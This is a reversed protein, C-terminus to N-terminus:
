ADGGYLSEEYCYEKINLLFSKSTLVKGLIIYTNFDVTPTVIPEQSINFPPTVNGTNRVFVLEKTIDFDYYECYVEGTKQVSYLNNEINVCIGITKNYYSANPISRAIKGNDLLMVADGVSITASEDKEYNSIDGIPLLNETYDPNFVKQTPPTTVQSNYAFRSIKHLKLKTEPTSLNREIGVVVFTNTVEVEDFEQTTENYHKVTELLNVKSGLKINKWSNSTTGAKRFANWFPVTLSYETEYFGSDRGYVANVYDALTEFEEDIGDINASISAVPRIVPILEGLQNKVDTEPAPLCFVYLSTHLYSAIQNKYTPPYTYFSKDYNALVDGRYCANLPQSYLPVDANDKHQILTSATSFLLKKYDIDFLDKDTEKKELFEKVKTSQENQSYIDFSDAAYNNALAYYKVKKSDANNSTDFNGEECGLIETLESEVLGQRSVFQIQINDGSTYKCVIYVSLSRAISYLLDALNNVSLFSFNQENSGVQFDVNDSSLEGAFIFPDIMKINTHVSNLWNSNINLEKLTETTKVDFRSFVKGYIIAQSYEYTALSGSIGLSSNLLEFTLEDGNIDEIIESAFELYKQIIDYLNGTPTFYCHTQNNAVNRWFFIQHKFIDKFAQKDNDRWRDILNNVREKSDDVVKFINDKMKCKELISVDFSYATFSYDRQPNIIAYTGSHSLDDGSIQTNIKGCFLMNEISPTGFFVACYRNKLYDASELTFYMAEEDTTNKCALHNVSFPLEDIAFSGEDINLEQKVSGLVFIDTETYDGEYLEQYNDSVIFTIKQYGTIFEYYEYRQLYRM